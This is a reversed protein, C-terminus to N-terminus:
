SDKGEQEELLRERREQLEEIQKDIDEITVESDLWPNQKRVAKEIVDIIKPDAKDLFEDVAKQNFQRPELNGNGPNRWKLNWGTIALRLLIRREDGNAVKMVADGTVKQVRVERNMANLYARRGGENLAQHEIYSAKDPLFTREINTFGFYDAQVAVETTVGDRQMAEITAQQRQAEAEAAAAAADPDVTITTESM